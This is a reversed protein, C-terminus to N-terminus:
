EKSGSHEACVTVERLNHSKEGRVSTTPHPSAIYRMWWGEHLFPLMRSGPQLWWGEAVIGVLGPVARLGARGSGIGDRSPSSGVPARVLSCDGQGRYVCIYVIWNSIITLNQLMCRMEKPINTCSKHDHRVVSQPVSLPTWSNCKLIQM